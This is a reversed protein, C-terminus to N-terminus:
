IYKKLITMLFTFFAGSGFLSLNNLDQENLWRWDHAALYHFAVIVLTVGLILFLLLFLTRICQSVIDRLGENRKHANAVREKDLQSKSLADGERSDLIGRKLPSEEFAFLGTPKSKLQSGKM